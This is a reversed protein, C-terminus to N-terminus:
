HREAKFHTFSVNFISKHAKIIQNAHIQHKHIKIRLNQLKKFLPHVRSNVSTRQISCKNYRTERGSESEGWVLFYINRAGSLRM